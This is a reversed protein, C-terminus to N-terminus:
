SGSSTANAVRPLVAFRFWLEKIARVMTFYQDLDAPKKLYTSVQHSYAWDVDTPNDSGSIVLVPIHKLNDDAKMARLVDHGSIRPLNLDLLVLRPTREHLYPPERRLFRLADEGSEVTHVRAPIKADRFAEITLKADGANDEVLLVELIPGRDM